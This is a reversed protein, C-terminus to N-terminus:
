SGVGEAWGEPLPEDNGIMRSTNGRSIWRRTATLREMWAKADAEIRAKEEPTAKREVMRGDQYYGVECAPNYCKWADDVKPRNPFDLSPDPHGWYAGCGPCAEDPVVVVASM